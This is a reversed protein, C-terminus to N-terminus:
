VYGTSTHRNKGPFTDNVNKNLCVPRLSFHLGKDCEGIPPGILTYPILWEMKSMQGCQQM